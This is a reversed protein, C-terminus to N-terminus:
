RISLEPLPLIFHGGQELYKVNKRLIPTAYQWALTIVHSPKKEQLAAPPLVPIHYGPSFLGHRSVNDDVIFDLFHGLEFNYILTTVTASAGYGAITKGKSRVSELLVHLAQKLRELDAAYSKFVGPKTLNMRTELSLLESVVTTTKRPGGRKQVSVRISGGKNSLREVDILEMGHRKFFSVLPSISHYCLHEHYVTDFLKKELIDVLYSVEFVFIGDDALLECIGDAMDPLQDSHAFVNNATVLAAPGNERRIQRALVHTFFANITPVGETTAKHAIERAPDVGLVRLGNSKFFKLLTGDNSGIDVVLADPAPSYRRVIEDAYRRFHEVLGLSISTTYIYDAFLIEPNVVDLLQVHGCDHCLYLDLPFLEQVENLRTAPVYADAIPSAKIPVGLEVKSSECLRCTTRHIFHQM